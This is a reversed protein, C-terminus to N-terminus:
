TSYSYGRALCTFVELGSSLDDRIICRLARGDGGVLTIPKGFDRTLDWQMAWGLISTVPGTWPLVPSMTLAERNTNLFQPAAASAGIGFLNFENETAPNTGTGVYLAVGNNLAALAGFGTASMTDDCLALTLSEIVYTTGASPALSFVVPTVSGNVRMDISAVNVLYQSLHSAGTPAVTVPLPLGTAVDMLVTGVTTAPVSM